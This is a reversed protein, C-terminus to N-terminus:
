KRHIRSVFITRADEREGEALGYNGSSLVSFSFEVDCDLASHFVEAIADQIEAAKKATVMFYEHYFHEYIYAKYSPVERMEQRIELVMLADYPGAPHTKFELKFEGEDGVCVSPVVDLGLIASLKASLSEAILTYGDLDSFKAGATDLTTAM